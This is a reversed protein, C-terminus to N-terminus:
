IKCNRVAIVGSYNLELWIEFEESARMDDFVEVKEEFLEENELNGYREKLYKAIVNEEILEGDKIVFYDGYDRGPSNYFMFTGIVNKLKEIAFEKDYFLKQWEEKESIGFTNEEFFMNRGM